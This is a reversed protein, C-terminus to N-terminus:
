IMSPGPFGELWEALQKPLFDKDKVDLHHIDISFKVWWRGDDYQGTAIPAEIGPVLTM